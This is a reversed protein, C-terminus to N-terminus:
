EVHESVIVHKIYEIGGLLSFVEDPVIAASYVNGTETDVAAIALNILRNEEALRLIEKLTLIISNGPTNLYVINNV